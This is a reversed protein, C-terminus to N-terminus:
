EIFCVFIEMLLVVLTLTQQLYPYYDLVNNKTHPHATGGQESRHSWFTLGYADKDSHSPLSVHADPKALHPMYRRWESSM